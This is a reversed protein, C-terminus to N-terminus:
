NGGVGAAAAGGSGGSGGGGVGSAGAGAAGAAGGVGGTGGTASTSPPPIVYSCCGIFFACGLDKDTCTVELSGDVHCTCDYNSGVEECREVLELGQCLATCTCTGDTRNCLVPGCGGGVPCQRWADYEAGCEPPHEDCAPADHTALCQIYAVLVDRCTTGLEIASVCSQACDWETTCGLARSRDCMGTCIEAYPGTVGTSSSVPGVPEPESECAFPALLVLALTGALMRRM